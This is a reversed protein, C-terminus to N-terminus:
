LQSSEATTTTVGLEPRTHLGQFLPVGMNQRGGQLSARCMLPARLYAVEQQPHQVLRPRRASM